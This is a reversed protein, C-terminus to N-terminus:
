FHKEELSEAGNWIAPPPSALFRVCRDHLLMAAKDGVDTEGFDNRLGSPQTKPGIRRQLEDVCRFLRRAKDFNRERFYSFWAAQHLSLHLTKLDRVSRVQEGAMLDENGLPSGEDVGAWPGIAANGTAFRLARGAAMRAEQTLAADGADVDSVFLGGEGEEEISAERSVWKIIEQVSSISSHRGLASVDERFETVEFLTMPVTKGKFVVRDVPRSLFISGSTSGKGGSWDACFSAFFSRTALAQANGDSDGTFSSSSSTQNSNNAALQRRVHKHTAESMLTRTGYRKNTEELRAATNVGDGLVGFKMRNPAGLNGVLVKATHLGARIRVRPYGKLDWARELV